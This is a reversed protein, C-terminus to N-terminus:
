PGKEHVTSAGGKDVDLLKENNLFILTYISYHDFLDLYAITQKIVNATIYMPKLNVNQKKEKAILAFPFVFIINATTEWEGSYFNVWSHLCGSRFFRSIHFPEM